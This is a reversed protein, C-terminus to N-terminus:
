RRHGDRDYDRDRRDHDHRGWDRRTHRDWDRDYRYGSGYGQRYYGRNYGVTAACGTSFLSAALLFFGITYKMAIEQNWTATWKAATDL